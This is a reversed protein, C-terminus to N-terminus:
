IWDTLKGDRGNAARAPARQLPRAPRVQSLRDELHDLQGILDGFTLAGDRGMM